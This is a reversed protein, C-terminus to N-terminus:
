AAGGTRMREALARLRERQVRVAAADVGGAGGGDVGVVAVRAVVPRLAEEEARAMVAVGEESYREIRSGQACLWALDDLRVGLDNAGACWASAAHGVIAEELQDEDYLALMSLVAKRREPTLKVRRPNKGWLELYRGFLRLVVDASTLFAEIDMQESKRAPPADVLFLQSGASKRMPISTM